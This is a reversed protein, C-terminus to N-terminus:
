GEPFQGTPWHYKGKVIPLAIHLYARKVKGRRERGWGEKRGRKREGKKREM